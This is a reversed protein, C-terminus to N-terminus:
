KASGVTKWSGSIYARPSAGRAMPLTREGVDKVASMASPFNNESALQPFAHIKLELDFGLIHEIMRDEARWFVATSSGLKPVM